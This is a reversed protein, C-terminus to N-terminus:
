VAIKLRQSKIEDYIPENNEIRDEIHLRMADKIMAIAQKITDGETYCGQLAPCVAPFKGTEDKEIIITFNYIRKKMKFLIKKGFIILETYYKPKSLVFGPDSFEYIKQEAGEGIYKSDNINNYWLGQSEVFEILAQTEQEKDFKAKELGSIAKKKTRLHNTITQIIKGNRVAGNGSIISQLENKVSM